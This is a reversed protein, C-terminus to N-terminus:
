SYDAAAMGAEKAFRQVFDVDRSNLPSIGGESGPDESDSLCQKRDHNVKKFVSASTRGHLRADLPLTERCFILEEDKHFRPYV